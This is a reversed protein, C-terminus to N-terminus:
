KFIFNSKMIMEGFDFKRLKPGLFSLNVFGLYGDQEQQRTCQCIWPPPSPANLAGRM